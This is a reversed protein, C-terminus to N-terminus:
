QTAINKFLGKMNNELNKNKYHNIDSTNTQETGRQSQKMHGEKFNAMIQNFKANM